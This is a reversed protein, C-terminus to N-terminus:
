AQKIYPSTVHIRKTGRPRDRQHKRKDRQRSGRVGRRPGIARRQLLRTLLCDALLLAFALPSAVDALELHLAEAVAHHAQRISRWTALLHVWSFSLGSIHSPRRARCRAPARRRPRSRLFRPPQAAATHGRAACSRPYVM